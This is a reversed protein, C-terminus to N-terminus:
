PKTRKFLLIKTEESKSEAAPPEIGDGGGASGGFVQALQSVPLTKKSTLISNKM